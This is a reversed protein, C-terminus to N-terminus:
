GQSLPITQSTLFCPCKLHPTEQEQFNKKINLSLQMTLLVYTIFLPIMNSFDMKALLTDQFPVFLMSLQLNQITSLYFIYLIFAVSPIIIIMNPITVMSIYILINIHHQLKPSPPCNILHMATSLKPGSLPHFLPNSFCVKSWMQYM